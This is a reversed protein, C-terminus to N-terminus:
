SGQVGGVILMKVEVEDQERRWREISMIDKEYAEIGGGSDGGSLAVGSEGAGGARV